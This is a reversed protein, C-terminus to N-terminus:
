RCQLTYQEYVSKTQGEHAKKKRAARKNTTNLGIIGWNGTGEEGGGSMTPLATEPMNKQGVLRLPPPSMRPHHFSSFSSLHHTTPHSRRTHHHPGMGRGLSCMCCAQGEGAEGQRTGTHTHLSPPTITSIFLRGTRGYSPFRQVSARWAGGVM